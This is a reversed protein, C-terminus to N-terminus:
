SRGGGYSGGSSRGYSPQSYGRYGGYSGFSSNGYARASYSGRNQASPYDRPAPMIRGSPRPVNNSMSNSTSNGRGFYPSSYSRSASSTNPMTNHASMMPQGSGSTPPRPVSRTMPSTASPGGSRAGNGASLSGESQPPRPVSRGAPQPMSRASSTAGEPGRSASPAATNRATGPNQSATPRSASAPPTMRSVTPRSTVGASPRAAPQGAKSGLLSARTPSVDPRGISASSLGRIASPSIKAANGRVSLGHELTNRSVATLGGTTAYRPM